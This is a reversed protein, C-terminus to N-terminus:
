HQSLMNRLIRELERQEDLDTEMSSAWLQAQPYNKMRLQLLALFYRQRGSLRYHPSHDPIAFNRRTEEDELLDGAKEAQMFLSRIRADIRELTIFIVQCHSGKASEIIVAQDVFLPHRILIEEKTGESPERLLGRGYCDSRSLLNDGGNRSLRFEAGNVPNQREDTVRICVTTSLRNGM